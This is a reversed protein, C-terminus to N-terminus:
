HHLLADCRSAIEMLGENSSWSELCEQLLPKLYQATINVDKENPVSSPGTKGIRMDNCPLYVLGPQPFDGGIAVLAM